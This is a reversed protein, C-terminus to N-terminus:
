GRLTRQMEDGADVLDFAEGRRSARAGLHYENISSRPAGAVRSLRLCQQFSCSAIVLIFFRQLATKKISHNPYKRAFEIRWSATLRKAGRM